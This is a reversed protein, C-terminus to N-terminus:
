TEALDDITRLFSAFRNRSLAFLFLFHDVVIGTSSDAARKVDIKRYSYIWLVNKFHMELHLLVFVFKM